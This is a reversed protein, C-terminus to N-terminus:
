VPEETILASLGCTCPEDPWEHSGNVHHGEHGMMLRCSMLGWELRQTGPAFCTGGSGRHQPCSESHRAHRKLTQNEEVLARLLREMAFIILEENIYIASGNSEPQRNHMLAVKALLDLAEQTAESM